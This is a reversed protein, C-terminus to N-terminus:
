WTLVAASKLMVSRRRDGKGAVGVEEKAKKKQVSSRGLGKGSNACVREESAM